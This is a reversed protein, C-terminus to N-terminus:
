NILLYVAIAALATILLVSLVVIALNSNQQNLEERNGPSTPRTKWQKPTQADDAAQVQDGKAKALRAAASQPLAMGPGLLTFSYIDLRIRDGAVAIGETMVRKDNIYTGNASNLDTITVAQPGLAIRAHERSLHTGPFVIDCQSGRGVLVTNGERPVLPFEQGALWSADAVLAWYGSGDFEADSLPDLIAIDVEGCRITDPFGVKRQTIRRGNVFTGQASGLDQLLFGDKENILRAHHASVSPDEIVLNNDPASGITFQKEVVWMPDRQKNQLQIKLMVTWPALLSLIRGAVPLTFASGRREL